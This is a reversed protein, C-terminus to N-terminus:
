IAVLGAPLLFQDENAPTATISTTGAHHGGSQLVVVRMDSLFKAKSISEKCEELIWRM